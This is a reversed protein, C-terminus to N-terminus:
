HIEHWKLVPIGSGDYFFLPHVRKSALMDEPPTWYLLPTGEQRLLVIDFHRLTLIKYTVGPVPDPAPFDRGPMLRLVGSQADYTFHGSSYQRLRGEKDATYTMRFADKFFVIVATGGNTQTTWTGQLEAASPKVLGDRSEPLRERVVPNNNGSCGPCSQDQAPAPTAASEPPADRYFKYYALTGVGALCALAMALIMIGTMTYVPRNKNNESKPMTKKGKIGKFYLLSFFNYM